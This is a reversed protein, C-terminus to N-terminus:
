LVNAIQEKIKELEDKMMVVIQQIELHQAKSGLTNIERGIEQSIFNLKRGIQIEPSHMEELFYKCHQRLRVKEESIDLKELYFLIEQEFRNHDVSEIKKFEELNKLIRERIKPIRDVEHPEIAPILETIIRIRETLDQGIVAGEEERFKNLSKAADICATETAKLIAPDLEDSGTGVVDQIRLITQTIDGESIGLKKQLDKIEKFYSEFLKKNILESGSGDLNEITIICEIRGRIVEDLLIKRIVHEQSNLMLPLKVRLDTSKSNLTKIEVFVTTEGVQGTASGYGTMSYLM